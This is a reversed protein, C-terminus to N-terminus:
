SSVNTSLGACALAFATTLAIEDLRDYRGPKGGHGAGMDTHLLVPGGGTM